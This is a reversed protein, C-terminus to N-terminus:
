GSAGDGTDRGVRVRGGGATVIAWFACVHLCGHGQAEQNLVHHLHRGGGSVHQAEKDRGFMLDTVCVHVCPMTQPASRGGGREIV